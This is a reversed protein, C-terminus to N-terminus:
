KKRAKRCCKRSWLCCLPFTITITGTSKAQSGITEGNALRINQFSLPVEIEGGMEEGIEEMAEGGQAYLDRTTQAVKEQSEKISERILKKLESKKM